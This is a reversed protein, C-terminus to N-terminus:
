ARKREKEELAKFLTWKSEGPRKVEWYVKGNVGAPKGDKTRAVANAAASPSTVSHGEVVWVGNIIQGEYRQGNHKMQLQTGHPLIVGGHSWARGQPTERTGSPANCKPQGLKLLRRLAVYEPEDFGRREMEILKHIEFDIEITRMTTM